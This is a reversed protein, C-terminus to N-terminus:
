DGEIDLLVFTVNDARGARRLADALSSAANEAESLSACRGLEDHPLAEWVGDSCVLLRGSVDPLHAAYLRPPTTGAMVASTVRNRMPHVRMEEDTITGEDRLRQVVSHDHTVKRFNEDGCRYVRCDGVNFALVSAKRVLVGAAAAGMGRMGPTEEAMENMRRHARTVMRGLRVPDDEEGLAGAFARAQDRIAELLVRCAVEGCACGGMGDAVIFLAPTEFPGAVGSEPCDMDGTVVRGDILLGDENDSRVDGTNTFFAYRVRSM